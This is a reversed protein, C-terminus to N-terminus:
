PLFAASAENHYLGGQLCSIDLEVASISCFSESPLNTISQRTGLNNLPALRLSYSFAPIIVKQPAEHVEANEEGVASKIATVVTSLLRPPSADEPGAVAMSATAQPQTVTHGPKASPLKQYKDLMVKVYSLREELLATANYVGEAPDALDRLAQM